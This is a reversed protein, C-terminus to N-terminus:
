PALAPGPNAPVSPSLQQELAQVRSELSNLREKTEPSESVVTDGQSTGGFSVALCCTLTLLMGACIVVFWRSQARLMKSVEQQPFKQLNPYDDLSSAPAHLSHIPVPYCYEAFVSIQDINASGSCM